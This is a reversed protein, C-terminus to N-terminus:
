KKVRPTSEPHLFVHGLHSYGGHKLFELEAEKNSRVLASLASLASAMVTADREEDLSRCLAEVVGDGLARRQCDPNNHLATALVQLALERARPSPARLERLMSVLGGMKGFDNAADITQVLDELESLAAMRRKEIEEALHPHEALKREEENGEPFARLAARAEAEDSPLALVRLNLQM